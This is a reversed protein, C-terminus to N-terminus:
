LDIDVRERHGNLMRDVRIVQQEGNNFQIMIARVAMRGTKNQLRVQGFRDHMSVDIEARAGFQRMQSTLPVWTTHRRFGDDRGRDDFYRLTHDNRPEHFHEALAVSSSGLIGLTVLLSKIKM